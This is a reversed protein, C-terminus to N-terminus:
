GDAPAEAPAEGAAAAAAAEKEAKAKAKAAAKEKKHRAKAAARAKKKAKEAARKADAEEKEIAKTVKISENQVMLCVLFNCIRSTAELHAVTLLRLGHKRQRERQHTRTDTSRVQLLPVFDVFMQWFFSMDKEKPDKPEHAFQAWMIDQLGSVACFRAYSGAVCAGTPIPRIECSGAGAALLLQRM